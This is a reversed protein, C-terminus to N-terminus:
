AGLLGDRHRAIREAHTLFGAADIAQESRALISALAMAALGQEEVTPLWGDGGNAVHVAFRETVGPARPALPSTDRALIELRFAHGDDGRVGVTVAGRELPSISAVTWRAFRSGVALPALLGHPAAVPAPTAMDAAAGLVSGVLPVACLGGGLYGVL